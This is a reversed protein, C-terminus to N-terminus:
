YTNAKISLPSLCDILRSTNKKNNEKLKLILKLNWCTLALGDIQGKHKSFLPANEIKTIYLINVFYYLMQRFDCVTFGANEATFM